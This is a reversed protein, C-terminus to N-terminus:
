LREIELIRSGDLDYHISFAEKGEFYRVEMFTGDDLRDRRSYIEGNEYVTKSYGSSYDEVESIEGETTTLRLLTGDDKYENEIVTGDREERILRGNSDFVRKSLLSGDEDSRREEWSGDEGKSLEFLDSEDSRDFFGSENLELRISEGDDSYVYFDGSLRSNLDGLLAVLRGSSDTLYEVRRKIESNLAYSYSELNGDEDYFYTYEETNDGEKIVRSTIMGDESKVSEERDGRILTWGGNEITKREIEVGDLYLIYSGKEDEEREYGTGSLEDIRELRQSLMNSRFYASSFLASCLLLFLFLLSVRKTM